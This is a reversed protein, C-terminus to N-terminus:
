TSGPIAPLSDTIREGRGRSAIQKDSYRVAAVSTKPFDLFEVPDIRDLRRQGRCQFTM